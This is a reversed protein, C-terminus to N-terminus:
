FFFFFLFFCFNSQTRTSTHPRGVSRGNDHCRGIQPHSVVENSTAGGAGTIMPRCMRELFDDFFRPFHPRCAMIIIISSGTPTRGNSVCFTLQAGSWCCFVQRHHYNFSFGHPARQSGELMLRPVVKGAPVIEKQGTPPTPRNNEALLGSFRRAERKRQRRRVNYDLGCANEKKQQQQERDASKLHCKARERTRGQRM